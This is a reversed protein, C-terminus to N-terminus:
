GLTALMSALCEHHHQGVGALSVQARHKELAHEVVLAEGCSSLNASRLAHERLGDSELVAGCQATGSTIDRLARLEFPTTEVILWTTM